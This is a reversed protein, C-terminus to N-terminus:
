NIGFLDNIFSVVSSLRYPHVYEERVWADELRYPPRILLGGDTTQEFWPRKGEPPKAKQVAFHHDWLVHFLDSANRVAEFKNALLDFESAIPSDTLAYRAQRVRDKLSTAIEETRSDRNLDQSVLLSPRRSTSLYRLRDFAEQIPRCFGEYAEIAEFRRGLEPSMKTRIAKALERESRHEAFELRLERDKLLVFIEGHPAPRAEAFLDWLFKGERRGTNAPALNDKFFNYGQWSRSRETKGTLLSVKVADRMLQRAKVGGGETAERDSYGPLSQEEEWIRLLRYGAEGLALSDNAIDSHRALRRYVGHFGFVKPTKLYRGASMPVKDELARRAKDIGPIRRLARADSENLSAMAEVYYWELVLWAPSIGDAAPENEFPEVIISTAAIATLFRPRWMRATMGPLIWDALRDAMTAIGLPDISGEGQVEPDPLTRYPMLM